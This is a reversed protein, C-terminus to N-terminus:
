WKKVATTIAHLKRVYTSSRLLWPCFLKSFFAIPHGKQILVVGMAVGSADTELTFPLSFDPLVLVPAETLKDFALQAELTWVFHGKKLLDTLPSAISAYGKIFFRYSGTLGLFGRLARVSSPVPWDLISQIKSQDPEVGKPSVIHGLYELQRQCLLCKSGKLFFEGEQLKMFVQELHTIHDSLSGSYILIDDFFVTVFKRLFPTFLDNMTAQFTSPANCLGFPMVKFEYHGHHTLFATKPIDAPEMRIQHFGQRLDLKSFRSAGGLEDLLEDIVPMPFRDSVTIANLARFDVCFRWTNDKKKVLLVPSSFPSHSPQIMGSNLM